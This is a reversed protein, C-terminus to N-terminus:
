SRTEGGGGSLPAAIVVAAAVLFALFTRLMLIRGLYEAATERHQPIYRASLTRLGLNTLPAFMAVFTYGLNFRGYDVVGLRDAIFRTAALSLVNMLLPQLALWATNKAVTRERSM